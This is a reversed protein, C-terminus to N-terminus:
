IKVAELDVCGRSAPRALFTPHEQGAMIVVVKEEEINRGPIDAQVVLEVSADLSQGNSQSHITEWCSCALIVFALAILIILATIGGFLLSVPWRWEAQKATAIGKTNDM